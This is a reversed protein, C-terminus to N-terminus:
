KISGDMIDADDHAPMTLINTTTTTTAVIQTPAKKSDNSVIGDKTDNSIKLGFLKRDLVASHSDLKRSASQMLTRYNVTHVVQILTEAEIGQQQYLTAHLAPPIASHDSLSKKLMAEPLLHRALPQHSPVFQIANRDLKDLLRRLTWDVDKNGDMEMDINMNNYPSHNDIPHDNDVRDIRLFPNSNPRPRVEADFIPATVTPTKEIIHSQDIPPPPLLQQVNRSYAITNVVITAHIPAEQWNGNDYSNNNNSNNHNVISVALQLQRLDTVTPFRSLQATAAALDLATPLTRGGLEALNRTIAALQQLRRIFLDVLVDMASQRLRGFPTQSLVLLSLSRKLQEDM